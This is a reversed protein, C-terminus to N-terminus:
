LTTKSFLVWLMLITWAVLVILLFWWQCKTSTQARLKRFVTKLENKQDELTNRLNRYNEGTQIMLESNMQIVHSVKNDLETVKNDLSEVRNSLRNMDTLETLMIIYLILRM